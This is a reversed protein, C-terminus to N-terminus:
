KKANLIEQIASANGRIYIEAKPKRDRFSSSVSVEVGSPHKFKAGYTDSSFDGRSSGGDARMDAKDFGLTRLYENAGHDKATHNLNSSYSLSSGTSSTNKVTPKAYGCYKAIETALTLAPDKSAAELLDNLKM